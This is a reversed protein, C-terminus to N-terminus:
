RSILHVNAISYSHNFPVDRPHSGIGNHVRCVLRKEAAAPNVTRDM